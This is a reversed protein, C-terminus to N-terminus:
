RIPLLARDLRARFLLNYVKRALSGSTVREPDAAASSAGHTSLFILFARGKILERSVTGWRRSDKSRNRHDGMLFFQEPPVVLPGFEDRADYLPNLYPEDLQRGEVFVRGDRLLVTEGPLGIVRKIFDQEPEDPHKFVVVDGRRIDRLPLLAREWAFSVPAYLFRNVLVFDGILLTDEMSGSPIESQQVVFARAFLVFIVSLLITEVWDRLISTSAPDPEPEVESFGTRSGM